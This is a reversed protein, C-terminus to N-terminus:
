RLLGEELVWLRGGKYEKEKITGIRNDALIREALRLNHQYMESVHGNASPEPPKGDSMVVSVPATDKAMIKQILEIPVPELEKPLEMIRALRHLRGGVEDGKCVKTGYVKWIRAADYVATDLKVNDTSFQKTL